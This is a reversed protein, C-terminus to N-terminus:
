HIREARAFAEGEGQIGEAIRLLLRSREEVMRAAWGSIGRAGGRRRSRSRGCRIGPRPCLSGGDGARHRRPLAWCGPALFAVASTPEEPEAFRGLAIAAREAAEIKALTV